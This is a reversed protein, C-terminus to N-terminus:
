NNLFFRAFIRAFFDFVKSMMVISMKETTRNAENGNKRNIKRHFVAM